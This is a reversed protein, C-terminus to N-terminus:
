DTELFKIAAKKTSSYTFYRVGEDSEFIPLWIVLSNKDNMVRNYLQKDTAIDKFEKLESKNVVIDNLFSNIKLLTFNEIKTKSVSKM